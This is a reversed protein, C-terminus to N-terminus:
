HVDSTAGLVKLPNSPAERWSVVKGKNFYVESQGYFWIDGVTRNPIGQAEIVKGPSDGRAFFAAPLPPAIAKTTASPAPPEPESIGLLTDAAPMGLTEDADLGQVANDDLTPPSGILHTNDSFALYLAYCLVLVAITLLWWPTRETTGLVIPEVNRHNTRVRKSETLAAARQALAPEGPLYGYRTHHQSLTEFAENLELIRQAALQHMDPHNQHRDPHWKQVLRRYASQLETWSCGPELDLTQYCQLFDM